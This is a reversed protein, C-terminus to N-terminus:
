SFGRLNRELPELRDVDDLREGGSYDPKGLQAKVGPVAGGLQAVEAAAFGRSEAVIQEGPGVSLLRADAIKILM